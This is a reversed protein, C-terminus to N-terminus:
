ESVEKKEPILQAQSASSVERVKKRGTEKRSVLEHLSEMGGRLEQMVSVVAAHKEMDKEIRDLRENVPVPQVVTTSVEERKAIRSLNSLGPIIKVGLVFSGSLPWFMAFFFSEFKIKQLGHYTVGVMFMYFMGAVVIGLLYMYTTDMQGGIRKLPFRRGKYFPATAMLPNMEANREEVLIVSLAAARM